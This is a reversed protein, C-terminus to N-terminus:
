QIPVVNGNSTDAAPAPAPEYKALKAKLQGNLAEQAAMAQVAQKTDRHMEMVLQKLANSGNVLDTIQATTGTQTKVAADFTAFAANVRDETM